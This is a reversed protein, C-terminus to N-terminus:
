GLIVFAGGGTCFLVFCTSALLADYRWGFGKEALYGQDWRFFRFATAGLMPGILLLAAIQLYAGVVLTPLLLSWPLLSAAYPRLM